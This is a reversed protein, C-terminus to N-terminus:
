YPTEVTIHNSSFQCISYLYGTPSDIEPHFLVTNERYHVPLVPLTSTQLILAVLSHISGQCHAQAGITQRTRSHQQYTTIINVLSQSIVNDPANPALPMGFTIFAM